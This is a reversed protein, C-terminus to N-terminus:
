LCGGRTGGPVFTRIQLGQNAGDSSAPVGNQILRAAEAGNNLVAFGFRHGRKHVHARVKRAGLSSFIKRLVKLLPPDVVSLEKTIRCKVFGIRQHNQNCIILSRRLKICASRISECLDVSPTLRPAPATSHLQVYDEWIPAGEKPVDRLIGNVVGELTDSPLKALFSTVLYRSESFGSSYVAMRMNTIITIRHTFDDVYQFGRFRLDRLRRAVETRMAVRDGFADMAREYVETVSELSQLYKTVLIT